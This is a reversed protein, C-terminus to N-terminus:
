NGTQQIENETERQKRQSTRQSKTVGNEGFNYTLTLFAARSNSKQYIMQSFNNGTNNASFRQQNLLDNV